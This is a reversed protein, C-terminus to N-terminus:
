LGVFAPANIGGLPRMVECDFSCLHLWSEPQPDEWSTRLEFKSWRCREFQRREWVSLRLSLILNTAENEQYSTTKSKHTGEAQRRTTRAELRPFLTPCNESIMDVLSQKSFLSQNMETTTMRRTARMTRKVAGFCIGFPMHDYSLTFLWTLEAKKGLLRRIQRMVSVALTPDPLCGGFQAGYGRCHFVPDSKKATPTYGAVV